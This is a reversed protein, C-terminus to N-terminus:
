PYKNVKAGVNVELGEDWLPRHDFKLELLSNFFSLANVKFSVDVYTPVFLHLRPWFFDSLQTALHYIKSCFDLNQYIKSHFITTYKITMQLIELGNPINIAM